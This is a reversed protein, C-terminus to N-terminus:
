DLAGAKCGALYDKLLSEMKALSEGQPRSAAERAAKFFSELSLTLARFIAEKSVEPVLTKELESLIEPPLHDVEAYDEINLGRLLGFLSFTRTRIQDVESLAKWLHGRHLATVTHTVHYWISDMCARYYAELPVPETEPPLARLIENLKGTKDFVVQKRTRPSLTNLSEFLLDLELFGELLFCYIVKREHEVGHFRCIVPFTSEVRAVWKKVVSDFDEPRAIVILDIDSYQDRFGESTSGAFMVGAVAPDADLERLLRDLADKREEPTFKRVPPESAPRKKNM